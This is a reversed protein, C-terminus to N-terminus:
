VFWARVFSSFSSFYFSIWTFYIYMICFFSSFFYCCCCPFYITHTCKKERKIKTHNKKVNRRRFLCFAFHLYIYIDSSNTCILNFLVDFFVFIMACHRTHFYLICWHKWAKTLNLYLLKQTYPNKKIFHQKKIIIKATRESLARERTLKEVENKTWM